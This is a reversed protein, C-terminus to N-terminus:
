STAIARALENEGLRLKKGGNKASLWELLVNIKAQKTAKATATKRSRESKELAWPNRGVWYRAVRKPNVGELYFDVANEGRERRLTHIVAYLMAEFMGVRITWEQVVSGGGSRFRQREIIIHTPNYKTILSNVLSYAHRAYTEPAFSEKEACPQLQVQEDDLEKDSTTTEDDDDDDKKKKKKKKKNKRGSKRKATTAIQSTSPRWISDIGDIAKGDENDFLSVDLRNWAALVPVASAKFLGGGKKVRREKVIHAFALNRIGMDISLLSLPKAGGDGNGIDKKLGATSRTSTRAKKQYLALNGTIREALAAKTGSSAVGIATALNQLEKAKLSDIWALSKSRM